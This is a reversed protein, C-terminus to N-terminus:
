CSIPWLFGVLPLKAAPQAQSAIPLAALLAFAAAAFTRMPVRSEADSM